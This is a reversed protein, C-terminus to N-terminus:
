APSPINVPMQLSKFGLDDVPPVPIPHALTQLQRTTDCGHALTAEKSTHYLEVPSSFFSRAASQFSVYLDGRQAVTTVLRYGINSVTSNLNSRSWAVFPLLDCAQSYRPVGTLCGPIATGFAYQHSSSRALNPIESERDPNITAWRAIRPKGGKEQQHVLARWDESESRCWRQSPEGNQQHISVQPQFNIM